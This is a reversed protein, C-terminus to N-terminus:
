CGRPKKSTLKFILGVVSKGKRSGQVGGRLIGARVGDRSSNTSGGRHVYARNTLKIHYMTRNIYSTPRYM